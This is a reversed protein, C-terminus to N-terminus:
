DEADELKSWPIDRILGRTETNQGNVTQADTDVSRVKITRKGVRYVDGPEPEWESEDGAEEAELARDAELAEPSIAPVVEEDDEEELLEEETPEKMTDDDDKIPEEYDDEEPPLPDDPTADEDWLGQVHKAVGSKEGIAWARTNVVYIPADEVLDSLHTEIDQLKIKSTDVGMLQLHSKLEEIKEKATKFPGDWIVFSHNVQYGAYDEPEMVVGQFRINPHGDDTTTLNAQVLQVKVNSLGGPLQQGKVTPDSDKVEDFTGKDRSMLKKLANASRTRTQRKAM